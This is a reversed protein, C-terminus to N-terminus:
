RTTEELAVRLTELEGVLSDVDSGLPQLSGMDPGQLSLEVARAVAENLQAALRRLRDEADRAVGALREASALQQRIATATGALDTRDPHRAAEAEARQLQNHLDDVGLDAVAASLENGREAIRWCEDVGVAVRADVEALRDKLPGPATTALVQDFRSEARQAQKVLSRWPEKVTAPDVEARRAKRPVAMAVRGVWVVGAVVAAAALPVGALIAASAGAGALLITGPSTIARAMAPTRAREPLRELM